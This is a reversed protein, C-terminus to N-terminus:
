GGRVGPDEIRNRAPPVLGRLVVGILGAPRLAELFDGGVQSGATFPGQVVLGIVPLLAGQTNPEVGLADGSPGAFEVLGLFCPEVVDDRAPLV